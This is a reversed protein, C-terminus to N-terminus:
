FELLLMLFRSLIILTTLTEWNFFIFFKSSPWFKFNSKFRFIVSLAWYLALFRSFLSSFYALFSSKSYTYYWYRDKLKNIKFSKKAFKIVIKTWNSPILTKYGSKTILNSYISFLWSYVFM